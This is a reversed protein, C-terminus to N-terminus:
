ARDQVRRRLQGCAADVDQGHERRVTAALGLQALTEVFAQSESPAPPQFDNGPVPNYPIVNVAAKLGDLFQALKQAQDPTDNIGRLLVWEVSFQRGTVAVYHELAQRLLELRYTRNLPVLRNRLANDAAHLSLSLRIQGAEQAFRQIGPVHGATSVTIKRAGVGLGEPHMLLKLSAMVADYNLFPEGMGMYVLNPTRGGLDAAAALHLAQEAIEGPNLDRAYGSQGTACFACALPCGVQTSLCFTARGSHALHVAEVTEGDDLAFLTKVAGTHSARTEIPEIQPCLAEQALRARLAKSLDTMAHVDFVHKHHMWRFIQRGHFPKLELAAAIEEPTMSSLPISM